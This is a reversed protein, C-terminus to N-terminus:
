DDTDETGDHNLDTLQRQVKKFNKEKPLEISKWSLITDKDIDDWKGFEIDYCIMKDNQDQKWKESNVIRKGEPIYKHCLTLERQKQNGSVLSTYELLVIGKQMKEVIKDLDM